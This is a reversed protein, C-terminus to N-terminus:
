KCYHWQQPSVLHAILLRHASAAHHKVHWSQMLTLQWIRMPWGTHPHSSNALLESPESIRARHSWARAQHPPMGIAAAFQLIPLAHHPSLKYKRLKVMVAVACGTRCM